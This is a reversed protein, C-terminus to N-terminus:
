THNGAVGIIYSKGITTAVGRYSQDQNYSVTLVNENIIDATVVVKTNSDEELAAKFEEWTAVEVVKQESAHLVAPCVVLLMAVSLLFQVAKRRWNM